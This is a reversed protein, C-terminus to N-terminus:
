FQLTNFKTIKKEEKIHRKSLAKTSCRGLSIERTMRNKIRFPTTTFTYTISELCLLDGKTCPPSSIRTFTIVSIYCLVLPRSINALCWVCRLFLQSSEVSPFNSSQVLSIKFFKAASSLESLSLSKNSYLQHVFDSSFSRLM